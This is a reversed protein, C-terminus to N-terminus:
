DLFTGGRWHDSENLLPVIVQDVMKQRFAVDNLKVAPNVACQICYGVADHYAFSLNGKEKVVLRRLELSSFLPVTDPYGVRRATQEFSSSESCAMEEPVGSQPQWQGRTLIPM